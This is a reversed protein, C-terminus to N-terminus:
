PWRFCLFTGSWNPCPVLCIRLAETVNSCYPFPSFEYWFGMMRLSNMVSFISQYKWYKHRDRMPVLFHKKLFKDRKWVIVLIFYVPFIWIKIKYIANSLYKMNVRARQRNQIRMTGPRSLKSLRPQLTQRACWAFPRQCHSIRRRARARRGDFPVKEGRWGLSVFVM